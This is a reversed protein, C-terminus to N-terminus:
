LCVGMNEILWSSGRDCSVVLVNDLLLKWTTIATRLPCPLPQHFGMNPVRHCMCHGRSVQPGALDLLLVGHLAKLLPQVVGEQVWVRQQQQEDEEQQEGDARWMRFSHGGGSSSSRNFPSASPGTLPQILQGLPAECSSTVCCASCLACLVCVATSDAAAGSKGGDAASDDGGAAAAASPTQRHWTNTGFGGASGELEQQEKAAQLEGLFCGLLQGLTRLTAGLSAPTHGPAALASLGWAAV